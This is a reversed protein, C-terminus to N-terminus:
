IGGASTLSEKSVAAQILSKEQDICQKITNWALDLTIGTKEYLFICKQSLEVDGLEAWVKKILEHKEDSIRGTRGPTFSENPCLLKRKRVVEERAMGSIFVVMNISAKLKILEDINKNINGFLKITDILHNVKHEDWICEIFPKRNSALKLLENAKLNRIREVCELSLGTRLIADYDGSEYWEIISEIAVKNIDTYTDHFQGARLTM